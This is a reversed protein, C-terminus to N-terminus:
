TFTAHCITAPLTLYTMYRTFCQHVGQCLFLRGSAKRCDVGNKKEEGKTSISIKNKKPKGGGGKEERKIEGFCEVIRSDSSDSPPPIDCFPSLYHTHRYTSRPM